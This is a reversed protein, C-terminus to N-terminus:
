GAASNPAQFNFLDRVLLAFGPLLTGGDISDDATLRQTAADPQYVEVLRHESFILWVMRAGNSLYYRAKARLDRDADNSSKIEVALDPM